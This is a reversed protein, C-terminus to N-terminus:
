FKAKIIYKTISRNDITIRIFYAGESFSGLNLENIAANSHVERLKQGMQNYVMLSMNHIALGNYTIHLM